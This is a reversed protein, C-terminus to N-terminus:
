ARQKPHPEKIHGAHAPNPMVLASGEAFGRLLALANKGLTRTRYGGEQVILTPLAMAGIEAGAKHFDAAIQTFTGTPDAKATDLGAAVVLVSPAFARIRELAPLLGHKRWYEASSGSPLPINLNFGKGPGSGIEEPFGAYYPYNDIPDGHISVTLVDPNSFFIEQQGNGHHYDIDLIAVRGVKTHVYAAAIASNNYYCYGGFLRSEAHHGPPRVLAYAAHHGQVVQEAATLACDVAHRAAHIAAASLPTFSDSCFWGLSVLPDKPPDRRKRPPFVDAYISRQGLSTALDTLFQVYDRDHVKRLFLDPWSKAPVVHVLGSPMVEELISAIRVPAEYYGRDHVWHKEHGQAVVMPMPGPLDAIPRIPHATTYRYPRLQLYDDQLSASIVGRADISVEREYRRTLLARLMQRAVAREPAQPRGLLDCCLYTMPRAISYKSALDKAGQKPAEEAIGDDWRTGIVPRAGWREYFRLRARNQHLTDDDPCWAPHDPMVEFFLAQSKQARAEERCREYLASGLGGSTKGPAACIFDLYTFALDPEHLLVAFGRVHRNQEAVLVVAKFRGAVPNRLAERIRDMEKETATPIQSLLIAGCANLAAKNIPLVDDHIRRIQFM